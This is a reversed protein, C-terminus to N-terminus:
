QIYSESALESLTFLTNKPAFANLPKEAAYYNFIRDAQLHV